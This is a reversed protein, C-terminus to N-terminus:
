RAFGSNRKSIQPPQAKRHIDTRFAEEISEETSFDKVSFNLTEGPHRKLWEDDRPDRYKCTKLVDKAGRSLLSKTFDKFEMDGMEVLAYAVTEEWKFRKGDVDTLWNKFPEENEFTSQNAYVYRAVTEVLGELEAGSKGIERSIEKQIMIGRFAALIADYQEPVFLQNQEYKEQYGTVVGGKDKNRKKTEEIIVSKMTELQEEPPLLVFDVANQIYKTVMDEVYKKVEDSNQALFSNLTNEDEKSNTEPIGNEKRFKNFAELANESLSNKTDNLIRDMIKTLSSPNKFDVKGFVRSRVTDRVEDSQLFDQELSNKNNINLAGSRILDQTDSISSAIKDARMVCEAEFSKYKGSSGKSGTSHAEIGNEIFKPLEIGEKKCERKLAVVSHKSHDFYDRTKIGEWPVFEDPSMLFRGLAAEGTHALVSHGYDHGAGMLVAAVRDGNFETVLDLTIKAVQLSHRGRTTYLDKSEENCVYMMSKERLKRMCHRIKHYIKWDEPTAQNKQNSM